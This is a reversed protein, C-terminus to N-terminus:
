RTLKKRTKVSYMAEDAQIFATEFPNEGSFDVEAAGCSYTCGLDERLAMTNIKKVQVQLEEQSIGSVIAAFEDGGVRFFEYHPAPFATLFFDATKKLVINGYHHGYTDNVHKFDDIDFIIVFFSDERSHDKELEATRAAYAAQNALQTLEDLYALDHWHQQQQLLLNARTLKAKQDILVIFVAYFSLVTLCLLLYVPIYEIRTIVPSPVQRIQM